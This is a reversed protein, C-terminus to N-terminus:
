RMNQRQSLQVITEKRKLMSSKHSTFATEKQSTIMEIKIGTRVEKQTEPALEERQTTNHVRETLMQKRPLIIHMWTKIQNLNKHITDVSMLLRHILVKLEV